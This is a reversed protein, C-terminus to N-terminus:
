KKYKLILYSNVDKNTKSVAEKWIKNDLDLTNKVLKNNKLITKVHRYQYERIKDAKNRWVNENFKIQLLEPCHQYFYKKLLDIIQYKKHIPLFLTQNLINRYQLYYPLTDIGAVCTSKIFKKFQPNKILSYAKLEDLLYTLGKVRREFPDIIFTFVKDTNKISNFKINKFNLQILIRKIYNSACRTTRVYVINKYRFTGPWTDPIKKHKESM